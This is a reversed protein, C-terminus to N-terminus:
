LHLLLLPCAPLTTPFLGFLFPQFLSSLSCLSVFSLSNRIKGMNKELFFSVSCILFSLFSRFLPSHPPFQVLGLLLVPFLISFSSLVPFFHIPFGVFVLLVGFSPTPSPSFLSSCFSQLAAEFIDKEQPKKEGRVRKGMMGENRESM